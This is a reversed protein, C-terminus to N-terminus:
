VNNSDDLLGPLLHVTVRRADRDIALVVDPINPLLIETKGDRVQLVDNAGTPMISEVVGLKQGEDTVVDMGVIEYWYFEGEELPVLDQEEALLEGGVLKEAEGISDVGEVTLIFLTGKRRCSTITTEWRRGDPAVLTVRELNELNESDGGHPHVRLAGRVGQPKVIKGLSILSPALTM